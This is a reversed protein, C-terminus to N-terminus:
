GLRDARTSRAIASVPGQRAHRFRAFNLRDTAASSSRPPSSRDQDTPIQTHPCPGIQSPDLPRFEIPPASVSSCRVFGLPKEGAPHPIERDTRGIQQAPPQTQDIAVISKALDFSTGPPTAGSTPGRASAQATVESSRGAIAPPDIQASLSRWPSSTAIMPSASRRFDVSRLRIAPRSIAIVESKRPLLARRQQFHRTSQRAATVKQVRRPQAVALIGDFLDADRPRRVPRQRRIQPIKSSSHGSAPPQTQVGGDRNIQALGARLGPDSRQRLPTTPASRAPPRPRTSASTDSQPRLTHRVQGDGGM